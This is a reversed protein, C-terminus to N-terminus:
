DAALVGDGADRLEVGADRRGARSKVIGTDLRLDEPEDQAGCGALRDGV